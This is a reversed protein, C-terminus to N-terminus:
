GLGDLEEDFLRQNDVNAGILWRGEPSFYLAPAANPDICGRAVGGSSLWAFNAPDLSLLGECGLEELLASVRVQKADVDLLRDSPATLNIELANFNIEKNM